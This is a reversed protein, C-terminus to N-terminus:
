CQYPIRTTPHSAARSPKRSTTSCCCSPSPWRSAAPRRGARRPRRAARTGEGLGAWIAKELVRSDERPAHGHVHLRRGAHRRRRPHDEPADRRAAGPWCTREADPHRITPRLLLEASLPTGPPDHRDRDASFRVVIDAHRRQPRIYAESEPERRRWSPSCRSPSTAASPPTASSRGAGAPDGRAPRPLRSTSAPARRAQHAAAAAGGRHRVGAARRVGAPDLQGTRTTTSPSSCRAPRHRAAAPAAGHHRHLQLRPAARTFPLGSREEGTTATTTTSACPPAATPASRRSWGAPSRPRARRATAPSRSCSRAGHRRGDPRVRM